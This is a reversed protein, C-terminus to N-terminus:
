FTLALGASWGWGSMDLQSSILQGAMSYYLEFFIESHNVGWEEDLQRAARPELFDLELSVKGAFRPGISWGEADTTSGTSALWHAVDLGVKPTLVIPIGLERAFTDIRWVINASMPITEFVTREGQDGTGGSIAPATADWQCWGLGLGIGILGFIPIRFPFYHFELGLMPGLDGGFYDASSFTDGLGEPYYGGIRLEFGFYEPSPHFAPIETWDDLDASAASPALIALAFVSAIASRKM